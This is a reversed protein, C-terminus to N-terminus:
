WGREQIIIQNRIVALFDQFRMPSNNKVAQDIFRRVLDDAKNHCERCLLVVAKGRNLCKPIFHHQTLTRVRWCGMCLARM